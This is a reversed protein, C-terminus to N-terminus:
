MVLAPKLATSIEGSVGTLKGPEIVTLLRVMRPAGSVTFAKSRFKAPVVVGNCTSLSKM